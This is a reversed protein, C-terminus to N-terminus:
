MFWDGFVLYIGKKFISYNFVVYEDFEKVVKLVVEEKKVDKLCGVFKIFKLVEMLSWIWKYNLFVLDFFDQLNVFFCNLWYQYLLLYNCFIYLVIM